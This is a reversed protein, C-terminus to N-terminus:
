GMKRRAQLYVLKKKKKKRGYPFILIQESYKGM